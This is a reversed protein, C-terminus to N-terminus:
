GFDSVLSQRIEPTITNSVKLNQHDSGIIIDAGNKAANTMEDSFEFRMFHVASTKEANDREMDEDAIAFVKDFGDINVWISDEIGILKGLAIRREAIDAYEIMFTAKLNNGDPVLPNYATLEEEIAAEEFIKEIRLMEQIQYQITLRDEFYLTANDGLAVRRNKKHAMVKARFSERQKSYTELTMLDTHTLRTM